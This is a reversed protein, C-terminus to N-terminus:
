RFWTSICRKSENTIDIRLRRYEYLNIVSPEIFIIDTLKHNDLLTEVDRYCNCKMKPKSKTNILAELCILILSNSSKFKIKLLCNRTNKTFYTEVHRCQSELFLFWHPTYNPLKFMQRLFQVQFSKILPLQSVGWIHSCYM